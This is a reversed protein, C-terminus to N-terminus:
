IISKEPIEVITLCDRIQADIDTHAHACMRIAANANRTNESLNWQMFIYEYKGYTLDRFHNSYRREWM